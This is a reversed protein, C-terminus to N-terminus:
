EGSRAGAGKLAENKLRVKEAEALKVLLTKAKVGNIKIDIKGKVQRSAELSSKLLARLAQVTAQTSFWAGHPDKMAILYNNIKTIESAYGGYILLSQCAVATTEIEAARGYGFTPTNEEATWYLNKKETTAKQLLREILEGTLQHDKNFSTMSQTCIALTYNDNINRNNEIIYNLAKRVASSNKNGTECLALMIYATSRLSDNQFKNIAGETIGGQDPKWSGDGEQQSILWAQTRSIINPDIEFVKSMDHFEMLGYATLIKNAPPNGFWEFGGGQVEFSLLRQYGTNIFGEAKMQIEPTIKGTNKMYDLILINPYTVSSTQEFCGYPMRLLGDLGELVQAFVGPYIKVFIKSADQLSDPPISIKQIISKELRGSRSILFEKGDPEIEVERRVADNQKEGYGSVTFAQRGIKLAEIPFYVAKVEGAKLRIKQEGPGLLKFWEAEQAVLRV